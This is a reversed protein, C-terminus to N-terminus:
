LNAVIIKFMKMSVLLQTNFSSSSTGTLGHSNGTSGTALDLAYNTFM